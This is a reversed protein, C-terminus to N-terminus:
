RQAPLWSRMAASYQGLGFELPDIARGDPTVVYSMRVWAEQLPRGSHRPWAPSSRDIAIALGKYDANTNCDERASAAMPLALM